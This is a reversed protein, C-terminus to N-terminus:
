LCGRRNRHIPIHAIPAIKSLQMQISRMADHKPAAFSKTCINVSSCYYYYNDNNQTPRAGNKGNMALPRANEHVM